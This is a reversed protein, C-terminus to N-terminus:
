LRKAILTTSRNAQAHPCTTAFMGLTTQKQTSCERLVAKTHTVPHKAKLYNFLKSTGGAYASIVGECLKCIVNKHKKGADDVVETLEFVGLSCQYTEKDVDIVVDSTCVFM